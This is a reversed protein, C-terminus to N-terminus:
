KSEALQNWRGANPKSSRFIEGCINCQFEGNFFDLIGFEEMLYLDQAGCVPCRAFAPNWRRNKALRGYHQFYGLIIDLREGLYFKDSRSADQAEEDILLVIPEMIGEIIEDVERAPKNLSAFHVRSQRLMKRMIALGEAIVLWQDPSFNTSLGCQECM